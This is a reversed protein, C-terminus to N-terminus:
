AGSMAPSWPRPWSSGSCDLRPARSGQTVGAVAVTWGGHHRLWVALCRRDLAWRCAYGHGRLHTVVVRRRGLGSGPAVRSQRWRRDCARRRDLSRAPDLPPAPVADHALGPLIAGRHGAVVHSQVRGVAALLHLALQRRVGAGGASFRRSGALVGLSNHHPGRRGLLHSVGRACAPTPPRASHLLTRHRPHRDARVRRAALDHDPLRQAHLLRRRRPLRRPDTGLSSWSPWCLSAVSGM